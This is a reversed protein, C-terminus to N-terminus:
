DGALSGDPACLGALLRLATASPSGSDATFVAMRQGEDPTLTMLENQLTM